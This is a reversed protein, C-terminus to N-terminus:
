LDGQREIDPSTSSWRGPTSPAPGSAQLRVIELVYKKLGKLIAQVEPGFGSVDFDQRLRVREGMRPLNEDTLRGAYHRAPYVFARRTRTASVRMAHEVLGRKLEDYRSRFPTLENISAPLYPEM